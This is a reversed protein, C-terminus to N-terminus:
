LFIKLLNSRMNFIRCFRVVISLEMPIKYSKYCSLGKNWLVVYSFKGYLKLGEFEKVKGKNWILGEDIDIDRQLM